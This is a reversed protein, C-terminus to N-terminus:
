VIYLPIVFSLGLPWVSALFSCLVASAFSIVASAFPRLFAIFLLWGTHGLLAVSRVASSTTSGATIWVFPFGKPSVKMRQLMLILM